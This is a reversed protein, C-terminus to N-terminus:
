VSSLVVVALPIQAILWLGFAIPAGYLACLFSAAPGGLFVAFGSLVLVGLEMQVLASLDQELIGGIGEKEYKEKIRASLSKEETSPMEQSQAKQQPKTIAKKHSNADPKFIGTIESWTKNLKMTRIYSDPNEFFYKLDVTGEVTERSHTQEFVTPNALYDGIYDIWKLQEMMIKRGFEGNEYYKHGFKADWTCILNSGLEELKYWRNGYRRKYLEPNKVYENLEKMFKIKEPVNGDRFMFGINEPLPEEYSKKMAVFAIRPKEPNETRFNPSAEKLPMLIVSTSLISYFLRRGLIAKVTGNRPIRNPRRDQVNILARISKPASYDMSM